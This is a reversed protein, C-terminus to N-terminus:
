ETYQGMVEYKIFRSGASVSIFPYDSSTSEYYHQSLNKPPIGQLAIMAWAGIGTVGLRAPATASSSCGLNINSDLIASMDGSSIKVIIEYQQNKLRSHLHTLPVELIKRFIIPQVQTSFFTAAVWVATPLFVKLCKGAPPSGAVSRIENGGTMISINVLPVASILFHAEFSCQANVLLGLSFLTMLASKEKARDLM